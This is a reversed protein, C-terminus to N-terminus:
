IAQGPRPAYLQLGQGGRSALFGLDQESVTLSGLPSPGRSVVNGRCVWDVTQCSMLLGVSEPQPCSVSAQSRVQLSNADHTIAFFCFLRDVVDELVKERVFVSVGTIAAPHTLWWWATPFLPLGESCWGIGPLM